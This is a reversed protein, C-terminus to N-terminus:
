IVFLDVAPGKAGKLDVGPGHGAGHKRHAAAADNIPQGEAIIPPGRRTPPSDGERRHAAGEANIPQGREM